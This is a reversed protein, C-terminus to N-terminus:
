KQENKLIVQKNEAGRNYGGYSGDSKIVRHCPITNDYNTNLTNGVARYAKPSGSLEAVEKYSLTSGKPIKKVIRFVRDRFSSKQSM